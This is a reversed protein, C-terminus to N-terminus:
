TNEADLFRACSMVLGYILNFLETVDGSECTRALAHSLRDRLWNPMESRPRISLGYLHVPRVM